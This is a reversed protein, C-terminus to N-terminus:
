LVAIGAGYYLGDAFSAQALGALVTAAVTLRVSNTTKSRLM